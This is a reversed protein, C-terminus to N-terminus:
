LLLLCINSRGTRHMGDEAVVAVAVVEEVVVVETVAAAALEEIDAELMATIAVDPTGIAVPATVQTTSIRIAWEPIPLLIPVIKLMHIIEADTVATLTCKAGLLQISQINLTSVACAFANNHSRSLLPDANTCM